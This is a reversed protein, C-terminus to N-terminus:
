RGMRLRCAASAPLAAPMQHRRCILTRKASLVLCLPRAAHLCVAISAFKVGASSHASYRALRRRRCAITLDSHLGCALVFPHLVESLCSTSHKPLCCQQCVNDGALVSIEQMILVLVISGRQQACPLLVQAERFTFSRGCSVSCCCVEPKSLVAYTLTNAADGLAAAPLSTCWHSLRGLVGLLPGLSEFPGHTRKLAIHPPLEAVQISLNM